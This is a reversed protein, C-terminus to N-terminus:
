YYTYKWIRNLYLTTGGVNENSYRDVQVPYGEKNYKINYENAQLVKGGGSATQDSFRYEGLVNNVGIVGKYNLLSSYGVINKFMNNNQDYVFNVEFPIPPFTSNLFQYTYSEKVVQNNELFLKGVSKYHLDMITVYDITGDSNHTYVTSSENYAMGSSYNAGKHEKLKNNEYVYEHKEILETGRVTEIKTILDGQYVFTKKIEPNGVYQMEKLKNGEYIFKQQFSQANGNDDAYYETVVKPLGKFASENDDSSCSFLLVSIYFLHFIKRM